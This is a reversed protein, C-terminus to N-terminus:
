EAGAALWTVTFSQEGSTGPRRVKCDFGSATVNDFYVTDSTTSLNLSVLVLPAYSFATPFTVATTGVSNGTTITVTIAGGQMRVAGPTYSTSGVTSWISAHGGQRRYFQPVRNGAKTDDVSDAAIQSTGIANDAIQDQGVADDAIKDVTIADDAIGATAIQGFGLTSGSRRLAQGDSSATIAAAAGESAASRGVVSLGALADLMTAEFISAFQCYERADTLTITGAQTITFTALPISWESGATQVLAPIAANGDTNMQVTARVTQATWDAKLNVRGGTTGTIPTTVTLNLSAPNEYFLGYVIGAGAAVALPSSSGSVALESGVGRLVGQDAEGDPILLRRLFDYFNTATYGAAPGDGTDNTTWFRSVETM